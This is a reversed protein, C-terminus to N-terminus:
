NTIWMTLSHYADLRIRCCVQGGSSASCDLLSEGCPGALSPSAPLPAMKNLEENECLDLGSLQSARAIRHPGQSKARPAPAKALSVGGSCSIGNWGPSRGVNGPPGHRVASGPM